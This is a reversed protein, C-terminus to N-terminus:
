CGASFLSQFELFDFLDLSGDGTLDAKPDGDDFATQFALFDFITLAGDGDLDAPCVPELGVAAQANVLGHGFDFDFGPEGLDIATDILRQRVEDNIRGNGNSDEIGAGIILAAVGAVHPSAMSTGSFVDFTTDSAGSTSLIDVGPAVLELGAGGQSFRAKQDFEDTAGVAMVSGYKAPSELPRGFLNGSAAIHIIGADFTNDYAQEMLPIDGFFLISNNTVQIGNDAAYQLAGIVASAVPITTGVKLAHLEANPAVGIIDSGNAVAVITGSVHTGHGIPDSTDPIGEEFNFGFVYNDALEVHTARAGSDLVGVAVGGGRQGGIHVPECNIRRIGWVQDYESAWVGPVNPGVGVVRGNTAVLGDAVDVPMTAHMGPVVTWVEHVVGGLSEIMAVDAATPQSASEILAEAPAVLEDNAMAGGVIGLLSAIPMAARRFSPPM